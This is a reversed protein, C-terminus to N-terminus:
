CVKFTCHEGVLLKEGKAEERRVERIREYLHSHIHLHSRTTIAHSSRNNRHKKTGQLTQLLSDLSLPSLPALLLTSLPASHPLPPTLLTLARSLPLYCYHYERVKEKRKKKKEESRMAMFGYSRRSDSTLPLPSDCTAM